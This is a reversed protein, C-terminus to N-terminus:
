GDAYPTSAHSRPAYTRPSHGGYGGHVHWKGWRGCEDDGHIPGGDGNGRRREGREGHLREGDHARQGPPRGGADWRGRAHQENSEGDAHTREGDAHQGPPRGGHGWWGPAREHLRQELPSQPAPGGWQGADGARFGPGDHQPQDYADDPQRQWTEQHGRCDWLFYTEGGGSEKRLARRAGGRMGMGVVEHRGGRSAGKERLLNCM